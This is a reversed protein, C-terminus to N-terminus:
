GPDLHQHQVLIEHIDYPRAPEGTSHNRLVQFIHGLGADDDIDIDAVCGDGRMFFTPRLNRIHFPTQAGVRVVRV